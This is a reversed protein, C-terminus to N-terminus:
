LIPDFGSEILAENLEYKVASELEQVPIVELLPGLDHFTWSEHQCGLLYIVLQAVGSPQHAPIDKERIVRLIYCNRLHPKPMQIALEVGASFQDGLIPLWNLMKSSEEPELAVPSDDIRSQWYRQLWRQWVETLDEQRLDKLLKSLKEAFVSRDATSIATLLNPIWDASPDALYWLATAAYFEIFRDKKSLMVSDLHPIISAFACQLHSFVFDSPGRSGLFGHWALAAIEAHEDNFLPYLHQKSWSEDITTLFAIQQTIPPISYRSKVDTNSCLKALEAGYPDTMERTTNRSYVDLAHIWYEALRGEPTNLAKNLWDKQSRDFESPNLQGWLNIAVINTRDIIECVYPVGKNQVAHYLIDSILEPYAKSLEELEILRLYPDAAELTEPWESLGRLLSGWFDSTWEGSAILFDM